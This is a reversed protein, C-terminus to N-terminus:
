QVVLDDSGMWVKTKNFRYEASSYSVKNGYFYLYTLFSINIYLCQYLSILIIKHLVYM